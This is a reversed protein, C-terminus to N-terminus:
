KNSTKSTKLNLLLCVTFGLYVKFVQKGVDLNVFFHRRVKAQHFM